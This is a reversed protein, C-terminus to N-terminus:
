FFCHCSPPRAAGPLCTTSCREAPHLHAPARGLSVQGLFHGPLFLEPCFGQSPEVLVAKPFPSHRFLTALGLEPKGLNM